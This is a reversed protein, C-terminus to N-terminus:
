VRTRRRESQRKGREAVVTQGRRKGEGIPLGVRLDLLVIGEAGVLQKEERRIRLRELNELSQKGVLRL